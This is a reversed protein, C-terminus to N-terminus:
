FLLEGRELARAMQLAARLYRSFYPCDERGHKNGVFVWECTEAFVFYSLAHLYERRSIGRRSVFQAFYQEVAYARQVKTMRFLEYHERGHAILRSFSVPYPLIGGAEWDLLVAREEKGNVILNFPLLDDHCLTRPLREYLALFEDFHRELLPSLLYQRRQKLSSFSKEFTLGSSILATNQWYEEQMAALARVALLLKRKTPRQLNEGEVFEMLLFTDDGERCTGFLRPAYPKEPFLFTKYIEAELDKAKKFIFRDRPSPAGVGDCLFVDWVGEYVSGDEERHRPLFRPEGKFLDAAGCKYWLSLLSEM